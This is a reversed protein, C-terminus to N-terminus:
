HYPSWRSRCLRRCEKGVRREESRLLEDIVERLKRSKTKAFAKKIRAAHPGRWVTADPITAAVTPAGGKKRTKGAPSAAAPGPASTTEQYGKGTKERVLKDHLVQAAAASSTDKITQQGTAGIKGYRTHVSSGEVWVEWFKKSTGGVFEFHRVGHEKQV